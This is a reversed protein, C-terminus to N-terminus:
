RKMSSCLREAPTQGHQKLSLCCRECDTSLFSLEPPQFCSFFICSVRQEAALIVAPGLTRVTRSLPSGLTFSKIQLDAASLSLNLCPGWRVRKQGWQRHWPLEVAAVMKKQTSLNVRSATDSVGYENTNDSRLHSISICLLTM